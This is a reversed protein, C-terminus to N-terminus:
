ESGRLRRLRAGLREKRASWDYAGDFKLIATALTDLSGLGVRRM